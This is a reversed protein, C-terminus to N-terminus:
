AEHPDTAVFRHNDRDKQAQNPDFVQGNMTVYVGPPLTTLACVAFGLNFVADTRRLRIPQMSGTLVITKNEIGALFQGTVVMTDTGHTILIKDADSNLVCQRILARDSDSLELSDKKLLSTLHFEFGVNAEEFVEPVQSEGIKFESLADFYVKDITGGTAIVEVKM